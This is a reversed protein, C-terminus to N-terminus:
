GYYMYLGFVLIIVSISINFQKFRRIRSIVTYDKLKEDVYELIKLKEMLEETMFSKDNNIKNRLITLKTELHSLEQSLDQLRNLSDNIDKQYKNKLEEKDEILRNMLEKTQYNLLDLYDELANLDNLNTHIEDDTGGDRRNSILKKNMDVLDQSILKIEKRFRGIGNDEEDNMMMEEGIILDHLKLYNILEGDEFLNSNRSDYKFGGNKVIENFIEDDIGNIPIRNNSHDYQGDDLSDNINDKRMSMELSPSPNLSSLNSTNNGGNISSGGNLLLNNLNGTSGSGSIGGIGNGIASNSGNVNNNNNNNGDSKGKIGNNNNSTVQGSSTLSKIDLVSGARSVPNSENTAANYFQDVLRKKDTSSSNLTNSLLSIGVASGGGYKRPTISNITSQPNRAQSQLTYLNRNSSSASIPPTSTSPLVSSSNLETSPHSSHNYSTSNFPSGLSYRRDSPKRMFLNNSASSPQSTNSTSLNTLSSNRNILEPSTTTPSHGFLDFASQQLNHSGGGSNSNVQVPSELYQHQLNSIATSLLSNTNGSGSSHGASSRGDAVSSSLNGSIGSSSSRSHPASHSQNHSHTPSNIHTQPQNIGNINQTHIYNPSTSSSNDISTSSTSQKLGESRKGIM